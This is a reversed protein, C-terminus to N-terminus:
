QGVQYPAWITMSGSGEAREAVGGRGGPGEGRGLRRGPKQRCQENPDSQSAVHWQRGDGHPKKQCGRRDEGGGQTCDAKWQPRGGPPQRSETGGSGTLGAGIQRTPLSGMKQPQWQPRAGPGRVNRTEQKVRM